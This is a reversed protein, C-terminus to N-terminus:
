CAIRQIHDMNVLKNDYNRLACELLIKLSYPLRSPDHIGLQGLSTIDHYVYNKGDVSLTKKNLGVTHNM